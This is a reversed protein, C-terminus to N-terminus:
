GARADRRDPSRPASPAGALAAPSRGESAAEGLRMCAQAVTVAEREQLAAGLIRQWSRLVAAHDADRPHLELRLLPNRRVRAAVVRAWAVSSARRWASSTSYVISQSVFERREPLLVLRRLTCIHTSHWVDPASSAFSRASAPPVGPTVMSDRTINWLIWM